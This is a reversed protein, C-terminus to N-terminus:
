SWFGPREGPLEPQQTRNLIADAVSAASRGARLDHVRLLHAGSLIAAVNAAVTAEIRDTDSAEPLHATLFRKRSIGALLPLNFQRLERFHALLVFNEDGLKGFGFGPDLVVHDLAIGAAKALAVTHTLGSVVLPLVDGHPLPPLTAWSGPVGRTHMLVAGARESAMVAAMARDWMLGSVDNVIEAGAELAARAAAAHYTDVSIVASPRAKLVGRIVPLIRELEEALRVPTSGPRTSEGGIDILDAGEDLLRLAHDRAAGTDPFRHAASFSDPTANVIGM